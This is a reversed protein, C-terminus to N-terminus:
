IYDVIEKLCVFMTGGGAKLAEPTMPYLGVIKYSKSTRVAQKTNTKASM